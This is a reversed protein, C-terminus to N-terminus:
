FRGTIVIETCKTLIKLPSGCLPCVDGRVDENLFLKNCKRCEFDTNENNTKSMYAEPYFAIKFARRALVLISIFCIIFIIATAIGSVKQGIIKDLM